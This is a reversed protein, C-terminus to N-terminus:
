PCLNLHSFVALDPTGVTQQETTSIAVYVSPPYTTPTLKGLAMWHAADTSYDGFIQTGDGRLRVYQMASPDYAVTTVSSGNNNLSILGGSISISWHDASLDSTAALMFITTATSTALPHEINLFIGQRDFVTAATSECYTEKPGTERSIQLKGGGQTITDSGSTGIPQGWPSCPMTSVFTQSFSAGNTCTASGTDPAVDPSADLAPADGGTPAPVEDIRWVYACGSVALM